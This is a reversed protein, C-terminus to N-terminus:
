WHLCSKENCVACDKDQNGSDSLMHGLHEAQKVWFLPTDNLYVPSPEEERKNHSFNLCKTKSKQPNPDTSFTLNYKKAYNECITMQTQLASRSPSLLVLDDCYSGAGAFIGGICCGVEAKHLEQLLEDMYLSFLAPLLCSGQRTGNGVGFEKSM